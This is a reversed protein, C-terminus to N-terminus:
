QQPESDKAMARNLAEALPHWFDGERFQIPRFVGSRNYENLSDLIRKVPGCFRNTLQLADRIFLPLLVVMVLLAPWIRRILQTFHELWSVQMNALTMFLVLSITIVILSAAWYSIARRVIAGQVHRDVYLQKRSQQKSTM